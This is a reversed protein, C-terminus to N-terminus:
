ATGLGAATLLAVAPVNYAGGLPLLGVTSRSGDGFAIWGALVLLGLAVAALAVAVVSLRAVRRRPALDVTHSVVAGGPASAPLRRTLIWRRVPQAFARSGGCPSEM